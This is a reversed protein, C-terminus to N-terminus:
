RLRSVVRHWWMVVGTIFLTGPVLALITWSVKIGMGFTRGFHASVLWAIANELFVSSATEVGQATFADSIANFPAPFAFYIATVAWLLLLLFSWFGMVSHLERIFRRGSVNRHLTVSHRLRKKGPWWLVAGSVIMTVIAIAGVGNLRLGRRGSALNDHLEAIQTVWTPECAVTDGLNNGTYPDFLREFRFAEGLIWIEVAAGPMRAGRIEVQKVDLPRYAARATARLEADTLRPGVGSVMIIRPCLARDLERRFVILSGSVSIVLVYLGVGLGAWLHVQFLARRLRGSQTRRKVLVPM